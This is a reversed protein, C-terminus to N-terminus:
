VTVERQSSFIKKNRAYNEYKIGNHDCFDKEDKSLVIKNSAGGAGGAPVAAASTRAQRAVEKQVIQQTGQDVVGKSKLVDEMDRMALVPGFPNQLYDPNKQLVEQFVQAEDSTPDNLDPHKELVKKKNSELLNVRQSQERQTAEEEREQKRLEAAEIRALERVAGKWDKQVKEDWEDAPVAPTLPAKPSARQIFEDIKSQLKRNEAFFAANSKRLAENLDEPRVYKPEEKKEIKQIPQDNEDLEVSIEKSVDKNELDNKDKPM